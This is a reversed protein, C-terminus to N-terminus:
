RRVRRRGGVAINGSYPAKTVVVGAAIFWDDASTEGPTLVRLFIAPDGLTRTGKLFTAVM